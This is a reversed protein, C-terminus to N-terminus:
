KSQESQKKITRELEERAEAPCAGQSEYTSALSGMTIGHLLGIYAMQKPSWAGRAREASMFPRYMTEQWDVGCWKGYASGIAADVVRAGDEVPILPVAKEVPTEPPVNSGDALRAKSLNDRALDMIVVVVDRPVSQVFGPHRDSASVVAGCLVVTALVILAIPRAM